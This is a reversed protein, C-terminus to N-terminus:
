DVPQGAHEGGRAVRTKNGDDDVQFGVRVAAQLKESYLMVNSVHIKGPRDLIGGQPMSQRTGPRVHVKQVNVGEVIIRDEKPFVELVKGRAGADKGTIVQVTDGKKVKAAM